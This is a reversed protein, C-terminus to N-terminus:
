ANNEATAKRHAYEKKDMGELHWEAKHESIFNFDYNSKISILSPNSTFKDPSLTFIYENFGQERTELMWKESQFQRKRMQLTIYVKTIDIIRLKDSVLKKLFSHIDDTRSFLCNKIKVKPYVTPSSDGVVIEMGSIWIHEGDKENKAPLKLFKRCESSAFLKLDFFRREKEVIESGLVDRVFMEAIEREDGSVIHSVAIYDRLFYHDIIFGTQHNDKGTRWIAKGSADKERMKVERLPKTTNIIYRVCRDLSSPFVESDFDDSTGKTEEFRKFDKQFELIGEPIEHPKRTPKKICFIRWMNNKQQQTQAVGVLEEWLNKATEDSASKMNIWAAINALSHERACQFQYFTLMEALKSVNGIERLMYSQNSADQNLVAIVSLAGVLAAEQEPRANKLELLKNHVYSARIHKDKDLNRLKIGSNPIHSEILDYLLPCSSILEIMGKLDTAVAIAM